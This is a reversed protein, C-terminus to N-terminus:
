LYNRNKRVGGRFRKNGAKMKSLVQDPTMADRQEKSLAAAEAAGATLTGGAIGLMSLTAGAKLFGRRDNCPEDRHQRDEECMKKSRWVYFMRAQSFEPEDCGM